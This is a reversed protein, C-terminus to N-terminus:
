PKQYVHLFVNDRGNYRGGDNNLSGHGHGGWVLMESGTWVAVHFKRATPASTTSIDIWIDTAPDYRGGTNVDM